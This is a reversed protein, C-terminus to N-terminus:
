PASDTPPVPTASSASHPTSIITRSAVHGQSQWALREDRHPDAVLDWQEGMRMTARDDHTYAQWGPDGIRAFDVSAAHM